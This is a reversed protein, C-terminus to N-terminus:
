AWKQSSDDSTITMSPNYENLNEREKQKETSSEKITKITKSRNVKKPSFSLTGISRM